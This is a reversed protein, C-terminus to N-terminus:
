EMTTILYCMDGKEPKTGKVSKLQNFGQIEAELRYSNDYEWPVGLLLEGKNNGLILHHYHRCAYLVLPNNIYRWLSGMGALDKLNIKIWKGECEPFPKIEEKQKFMEECSKDAMSAYEKLERIDENLKWVISKFAEKTEAKDEKTVENDSAERSENQNDAETKEPEKMMFCNQWPYEGKIYGIAGVELAESIVAVARIEEPKEAKVDCRLSCSGSKDVELPKPLLLFSDEWLLYPKYLKDTDIGQLKLTLRCLDKGYELIARGKSMLIPIRNYTTM